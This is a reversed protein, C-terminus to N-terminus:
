DVQTVIKRASRPHRVLHGRIYFQGGKTCSRNPDMAPSFVEPRVLDPSEYVIDFGGKANAQGIRPRLWTHLNRPDIKVLDGSPDRIEMGRVAERIAAPHASNSRRMAEANVMAGLYTGASIATVRNAVPLQPYPTYVYSKVKSVFARNEETDISEYYNVSSFHGQMLEAGITELDSEMMVTHLIPMRDAALGERRFAQLFAGTSEGVLNSLVWDPKKRVIDKVLQRFQEERNLDLSCFENGVIEGGHWYITLRAQKSMTHPYIYNSGVIYIRYGALEMMWPIATATLQNPVAGTAVMNPSCERGEYFVGYFLLAGARQVSPLTAERSASPTCGWILNVRAALLENVLRTYNPWQSAPDRILPELLAGNIGGSRNIEDIAMLSVRLQDRGYIQMIGTQSFLLGIRIKKGPDIAPYSPMNVGGRAPGLMLSAGAGLAQRLFRRRSSFSSKDPSKTIKKMRVRQVLLPKKLGALYGHRGTTYRM